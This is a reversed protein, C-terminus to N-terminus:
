EFDDLNIEEQYLGYEFYLLGDKEHLEFTEISIKGFYTVAITATMKTVDIEVINFTVNTEGDFLHFEQLYYTKNQKM